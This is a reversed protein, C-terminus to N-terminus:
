AGQEKEGLTFEGGLSLQVGNRHAEEVQFYLATILGLLYWWLIGPKTGLAIADTIGYSFYALLSGAMGLALVRVLRAETLRWTQWLTWGAGLWLSLYAILGPLGLDVAASLLHNHPHVFNTERNITFLPYLVNAVPQFTGMGMGTFPFDQVAYLARSWLEFRGSLTQVSLAGEGFQSAGFVADGLREPGVRAVAFTALALLTVSGVLLWRRAAPGLRPLSRLSIVTMFVLAFALGLYAERSQTLFFVGGVFATAVWLAVVLVRKWRGRSTGVLERSAGVAAGSLAVFLPLLWLLAGAVINPHFRGEPGILGELRPPLRATIPELIPFKIQFWATGFLALGALAIGGLLYLALAVAWGRRTRGRHVLAFFTGLGLVVGAVSPYSLRLDYTAFLSVLMALSLLLLALNLPTRTLPAGARAWRMGWLAPLLLLAWAHEPRGLIVVPLLLVLGGIEM